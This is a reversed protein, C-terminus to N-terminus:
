TIPQLYIGVVHERCDYPTDTELGVFYYYLFERADELPVSRHIYLPIDLELDDMYPELDKNRLTLVIKVKRYASPNKYIDEWMESTKIKLQFHDCADEFNMSGIFM